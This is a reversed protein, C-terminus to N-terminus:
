FIMENPTWISKTGDKYNIVIEWGPHVEINKIFLKTKALDYEKGQLELHQNVIYVLDDLKIRPSDPCKQKGYNKYGSCIYVEQREDRYNFNRHCIKCQIIGNFYDM